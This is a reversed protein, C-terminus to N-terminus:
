WRELNEKMEYIYRESECNVAAPKPEGLYKGKKGLYKVRLAELDAGDAAIAALADCRIQELNEKMSM